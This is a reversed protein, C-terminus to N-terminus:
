GGDGTHWLLAAGIGAKLACEIQSLELTNNILNRLEWADIGLGRLLWPLAHRWLLHHEPGDYTDTTGILLIYPVKAEVFTTLLADMAHGLGADKMFIVPIQDDLCAGFATAVALDERPAILIPSLSATLLPALRSDPVGFWDASNVMESILKAANVANMDVTPDAQPSRLAGRIDAAEVFCVNSEELDRECSRPKPPAQTGDSCKSSSSM